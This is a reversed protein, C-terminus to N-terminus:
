GRKKAAFLRARALFTDGADLTHTRGSARVKVRGRRVTTRTGTCGDETIWTAGRGKTVSRKGITRFVGKTATVRLRRVVGKPPRTSRSACARAKGPPTVLVLDTQGAQARLQKVRFIGAEITATATQGATETASTFAVSGKRADITAGVPVAALQGLEVFGRGPVKVLVVGSGPAALVTRGAVPVPDEVPPPPPQNSGAPTPEPPPPPQTVVPQEPAGVQMYIGDPSGGQYVTTASFPLSTVSGPFRVTGSADAAGALQGVVSSEQVRFGTDGSVREIQTGPPFDLRSALSAVHMVPDKLGGGLSLTYQYATFGGSFYVADSHALPPTFMPQNFITQSGDVTTTPAPEVKPGSVTVTQGRLTGTATGGSSSTWDAFELTGQSHAASAAALTSAAIALGTLARRGV